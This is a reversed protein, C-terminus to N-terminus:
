YRAKNSIRVEDMCGQWRSDFDGADGGWMGLTFFEGDSGVTTTDTVTCGTATGDLLCSIVGAKRQIVLHYWKNLELADSLQNDGWSGSHFVSIKRDSNYSFCVGFVGDPDYAFICQRADSVPFIHAEFCFDGDFTFANDSNTVKIYQGNFFWGDSKGDYGTEVNGGSSICSRHALSLDLMPSSSDFPLLLKTYSDRGYISVATSATDIMKGVLGDASAAYIGNVQPTEEFSNYESVTGDSQWSNGDFGSVATGKLVLPQAPYSVEDPFISLAASTEYEYSHWSGSVLNENYFDADYLYDASPTTNFVWYFDGNDQDYIRFLYREASSHKFVRKETSRASKTEPTVSYTGNWDSYDVTEEYGEYTAFGTVGISEAASYADYPAVFETVKVLASGKGFVLESDVWGPTITVQSATETVAAAALEITHSYTLEGDIIIKAGEQTITAPSHDCLYYNTIDFVLESDVYGTGVIAKNNEYTIEAKPVTLMTNEVYGANVSFVNGNLVATTQPIEITQEDIVGPTITVINKNVTVTAAEPEEPTITVSGGQTYGPAISVSYGSVALEVTPINGTVVIGNSDIATVGSLLDDATVSVQPLETTVTIADVASAYDSISQEVTLAAGKATISNYLDNKALQLREIESIISM